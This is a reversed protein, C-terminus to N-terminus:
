KSKSQYNKIYEAVEIMPAIWINKENQKVFHLLQSHAPLSVNLSHEGGVGHFLIVLLSKTEIAKKVWAIMEEGTEGNVAYCDVDYLDIQDVSHMEHRVVRAAM